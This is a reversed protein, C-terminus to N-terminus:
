RILLMRRTASFSAGGSPKADLRYFYVGSALEPSYLKADLTVMHGGADQTEDALRAVERGLVDYISLTVHAAVPLSYHIRTSPNFPNPFNPLLGFGGPQALLRDEEAVDTVIEAAGWSWSVIDSAIRWQGSGDIAKGFLDYPSNGDARDAFAFYRGDPSVEVGGLHISDDALVTAQDNAFDYRIIQNSFYGFNQTSFLFGSGDPLWCLGSVSDTELVLPHTAVDSGKVGRYIGRPYALTSYYLFEDSVPSWALSGNVLWTKGSFLSLGGQGNAPFAPLFEKLGAPVMYAIESGDSKWTLTNIRLEYPGSGGTIQVLNAVAVAQGPVVDAYAQPFLWTGSGSKVFVFQDRGLDAVNDVTVVASSGPAIAVTSLSTAGEIYLFFLSEDPILNEVTVTVSGQPLQALDECKPANTIRRLGSGDPQIAFIDSNYCSCGAEQASIFAIERGDPRWGPVPHITSLGRPASYIMRDNSGDPSVLHLESTGPQGETTDVVRFYAITGPLDAPAQAALPGASAAFLVLPATVKTTILRRIANM